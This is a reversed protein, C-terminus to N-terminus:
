AHGRNLHKELARVSLSLVLCLILYILTVTL